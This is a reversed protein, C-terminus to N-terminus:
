LQKELAAELKAASVAGERIIKLTGGFVQIVTSGTRSGLAGGDIFLEIQNAFYRRAEEVTPAPQQGSPNASTATLPRGLSRVLRTAIPEASIRVGIGGDLNLLPEPTGQRAPLVITLPGPWFSEILKRAASPVESVLNLLMEEDAVLVPIPNQRDRGKLKFVRDIADRNLADAGLGYLTETPFVIVEGQKLADVARAFNEAETM